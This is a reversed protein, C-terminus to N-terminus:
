IGLGRFGQVGLGTKWVEPHSDTQWLLRCRWRERGLRRRQVPRTPRLFKPTKGPKPSLPELLRTNRSGCGDELAGRRCIIPEVEEAEGCCHPAVDLVM